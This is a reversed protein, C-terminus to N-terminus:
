KRVNAKNTMKYYDELLPSLPLDSPTLRGEPLTIYVKRYRGKRNESRKWRMGPYKIVVHRLFAALENESTYSVKIKIM